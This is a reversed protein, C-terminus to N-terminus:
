HGSALADFACQTDRVVPFFFYHLHLTRVTHMCARERALKPVNKKFPTGIRELSHAALSYAYLSNKYLWPPCQICMRYSSAMNVEM